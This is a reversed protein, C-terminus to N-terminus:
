TFEDPKEMEICKLGVSVMQFMTSGQQFGNFEDIHYYLLPRSKSFLAWASYISFDQIAKQVWTM